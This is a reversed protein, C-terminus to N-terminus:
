DALAVLEVDAPSPLSDGAHAPLAARGDAPTLGAYVSRREPPPPPFARANFDLPKRGAAAAALSAAREREVGEARQLAAVTALARLYRTQAATLRKEFHEGESLSYSDRCVRGHRETVTDLTLRALAAQAAAARVLPGGDGALDGAFREAEAEAEAVATALNVGGTLTEAVSRLALRDAFTEFASAPLTAFADRLRSVDAATPKDTQCARLAEGLEPRPTGDNPFTVAVGVPTRLEIGDARPPLAAPQVAAPTKRAMPEAGTPAATSPRAPLTRSDLNLPPLAVVVPRLARSRRWEGRHTRYGTAVLYARVFPRLADAGARVAALAADLPALSRRLRRRKIEAELRRGADCEGLVDCAPGTGLYVSRVRGDPTRTKRYFYRGSGRTEWGM